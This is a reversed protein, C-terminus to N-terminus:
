LPGYVTGSASRYYLRGAKAYLVVGAGPAAPDGGLNGLHITGDPNIDSGSFAIPGGSLTIEGGGAILAPNGGSSVFVIRDGADGDKMAIRTSGGTTRIVLGEIVGATLTGADASIASLQNVNLRDATITAPTIADGNMTETDSVTSSSVPATPTDDEELATVRASHSYGRYARPVHYIWRTGQTYGSDVLSSGRFVEVYYRDVADRDAPEDWKVVIRGPSPNHVSVGTPSAVAPSPQSWSTWGSWPGRRGYVDVARVRSRYYYKRRINHWIRFATTDTDDDKAEVVHRRTRLTTSGNKSIALQVVYRAVGDLTDGDTPIWQGVENWTQVAIWPSGRHTEDRVFTLTQGTPAPPLPLTANGPLVPTTWPSWDSWAIKGPVGIGARVRTQYYWTRPRVIHGYEDHDEDGPLLHKWIAPKGSSLEHPNGNSDTARLQTQYFDIRDSIDQGSTDQTVPDWFVHARWKAREKVERVVFVLTVNTPAQPPVGGSEVETEPGPLARLREFPPTREEGRIGILWNWTRTV